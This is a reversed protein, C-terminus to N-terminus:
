RRIRLERRCKECVAVTPHAPDDMVQLIRTAGKRAKYREIIANGIAAPRKPFRRQESRTWCRVKRGELLVRWVPEDKHLGDSLYVEVVYRGVQEHQIIREAAIPAVSETAISM